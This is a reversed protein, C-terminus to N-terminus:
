NIVLLNHLSPDHLGYLSHGLLKRLSVLATHQESTHQRLAALRSFSFSLSLSLLLRLCNPEPGARIEPVTPELSAKDRWRQREDGHSPVTHAQLWCLQCLALVKGSFSLLVGRRTFNASEPSKEGARPPSGIVSSPFKRSNVASFKSTMLTCDNKFGFYLSLPQGQNVHNSEGVEM